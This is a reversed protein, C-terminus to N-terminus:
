LLQRYRDRGACQAARWFVPRHLDDVFVFFGFAAKVAAGDAEQAKVAIKVM